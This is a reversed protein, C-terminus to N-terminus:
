WIKQLTKIFRDACANKLKSDYHVGDWLRLYQHHWGNIRKIHVQQSIWPTPVSHEKNIEVIKINTKVIGENLIDQQGQLPNETYKCTYLDVGIIESYIIKALPWSTSIKKHSDDLLGILHTSLEDSNTFTFRPKEQATRKFTCDCVGATVIVKATPNHKLENIVETSIVFLGKGSFKLVKINLDGTDQGNIYTQMESVRSDGFIYAATM